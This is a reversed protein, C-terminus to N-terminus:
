KLLDIDEPRLIPKKFLGSDESLRPCACDVLCDLKMGLMKEPRIEDMIIIWANRGSKELRGKIKEATKLNLQGPKTSVLIGFNTLEKAKEIRMMRIIQTKEKEKEMNELKGTEFDLFLVPKKVHTALGVPHFRGTGLFLFCDVMSELCTASSYDCGLIQGPHKAKTPTGTHAYKGKKELFNKAPELCSLHQVTAVLGIKKYPKLKDLNKNLFPIPDIDIRYEEYIVPIRTKIGFDSHGIHLIIDCGLKEAESFRLDCAGFCPDASIFVELDNRELEKALDLARNKLGEPIQLFIRKARHKRIKKLVEETSLM